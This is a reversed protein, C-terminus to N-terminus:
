LDVAASFFRYEETFPVASIFNEPIAVDELPNEFQRFQLVKTFGSFLSAIGATGVLINVTM